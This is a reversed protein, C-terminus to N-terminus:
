RVVDSREHRGAPVEGAPAASAPSVTNGVAASAVSTLVSLGAAVGGAEVAHVASASVFASLGYAAVTVQAFTKVAREATDLWFVRTFVVSM